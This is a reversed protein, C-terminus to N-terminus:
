LDWTSMMLTVFDDDDGIEAYVDRYYEVMDVLDYGDERGCSYLHLSDMLVDFAEADGGQRRGLALDDETLFEKCDVNCLDWARFVMERARTSLSGRIYEIFEILILREDNMRSFAVVLADQQALTLEIGTYLSIVGSVAEVSARGAPTDLDLLKQTLTQIAAGKCGEPSVQVCQSVIDFRLKKLLQLERITPPVSNNEYTESKKGYGSSIGNTFSNGKLWIKNLDGIPTAPFDFGNGHLATHLYYTVPADKVYYPDNRLTQCPKGGGLKSNQFGSGNYDIASTTVMFRQNNLTNIDNERGIEEERIQMQISEELRRERPGKEDSAIYDRHEQPPRSDNLTSKYDKADVHDSHAIVRMKTLAGSSKDRPDYVQGNMLKQMAVTEQWNGLKATLKKNDM